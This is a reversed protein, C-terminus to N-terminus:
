FTHGIGIYLQVGNGTSGSVPTGLDVRLPGFGTNYRLGLGAGSHWNGDGTFDATEGVFGADYFAVTSIQETVRVRMEGSLGVFSLGGSDIGNVTVFNSQYPQGRVTGGGGTYFLFDPPTGALSPGIISGLQLRGAMVVNNSAGIGQYARLDSQIFIGNDADGQGLYPMVGAELFYGSTPDTVVDRQDWLIRMPIGYVFFNRSGFNDDVESARFALEMSAEFRDSIYRKFGFQTGVQRLFYLDEDEQKVEFSLQFDTDSRLTAPRTYLAGLSWDTGGSQAGINDISADFRLREAGGLINRHLWFASLSVGDRSELEAGFGFRRPLDDVVVLNMDLTEGPGVAEDESLDVARFSGARRLRKVVEASKQPDFTEGSPLDAIERIREERVKSTSQVNLKGYTVKPGPALKLDVNLEDKAHNASINQNAVSAKANGNSRWGDVGAKAANQIVGLSAQQGTAFEEPLETEPALPEIQAKGFKFRPGPDVSIRVQQVNAIQAFPSISTAEQGNVYIDLDPGFYGQQYLLSVLRKYDSQAAALIDQGDNTEEAKAAYVLSSAKIRDRLEEDAKPADLVVEFAFLPSAMALLGLLLNSFFSIKLRLASLTM